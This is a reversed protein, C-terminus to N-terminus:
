ATAKWTVLHPLRRELVTLFASLSELSREVFGFFQAESLGRSILTNCEAGVTYRGNPPIPVMFAKPFACTANCTRVALRLSQFDEDCLAIGRWQTSIQLVHPNEVSCFYFANDAEVCLTLETKSVYDRGQTRLLAGLRHIDVPALSNEQRM